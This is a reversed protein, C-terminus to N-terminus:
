CITHIYNLTIKNMNLELLVSVLFAIPKPHKTEIKRILVEEMKEKLELLMSLEAM